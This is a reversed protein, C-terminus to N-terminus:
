VIYLFTALVLSSACAFPALLQPRWDLLPSVIACMWLAHVVQTSLNLTSLLATKTLRVDSNSLLQQYFHNKHVGFAVSVLLCTTYLLFDTEWAIALTWLIPACAYCLLPLRPRSRVCAFSGAVLSGFFSGGFALCMALTTTRPPFWFPRVKNLTESLLAFMLAYKWSRRTHTCAWVSRLAQINEAVVRDPRLLSAIKWVDDIAVIIRDKRKDDEEIIPWVVWLGLAASACSAGVQIAFYQPRDDPTINTALCALVMALPWMAHQVSLHHQAVAKNPSLSYIIDIDSGSYLARAVGEGLSWIVLLPLRLQQLQSPVIIAM